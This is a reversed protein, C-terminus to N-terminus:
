FIISGNLLRVTFSIRNSDSGLQYVVIQTYIGGHVTIYLPGSSYGSTFSGGFTGVVTNNQKIALINGCWGPVYSGM